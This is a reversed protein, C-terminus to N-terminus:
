GLAELEGLLQAKVTDVEATLEDTVTGLVDRFMQVRERLMQFRKARTLLNRDTAVAAKAALEGKLEAIEDRLESLQSAFGRKAAASAQALNDADGSIAFVNIESTPAHVRVLASVAFALDVKASPVFYLGGTRERLSVASLLPDKYTGSMLQVLCASLEPTDVHESCHQYRADIAALLERVPDLPKGREVREPGEKGVKLTVLHEHELGTTSRREVVLAWEGAGMPRVLVGPRRPVCHKVASSLLAKPTPDRGLGAALGLRDLGARLKERPIDVGQLTWFVLAGVRKPGAGAIVDGVQALALNAM